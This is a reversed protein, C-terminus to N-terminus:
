PSEQITKLASNKQPNLKTMVIRHNEESHMYNKYPLFLNKVLYIIGLKILSQISDLLSNLFEIKNWCGLWSQQKWQLFHQYLEFEQRLAKMTSYNATVTLERVDWVEKASSLFLFPKSIEPRMSNILWSIIMSNSCGM